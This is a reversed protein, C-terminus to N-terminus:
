SAVEEYWISIMWLSNNLSGGSASQEIRIVEIGPQEKLWANIEDEFLQQNPQKGDETKTQKMPENSSFIKVKM